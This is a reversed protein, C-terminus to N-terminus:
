GGAVGGDGPAPVKAPPQQATDGIVEVTAGDRLAIKGATVVQEGAEIGGLVEVLEGSMFGTRVAVRTAINNRVAYVAPEGEQDLLLVRKGAKTLEATAALGALGAGVVIADFRDTMTNGRDIFRGM